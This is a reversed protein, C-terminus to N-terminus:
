PEAYAHIVAAVCGEWLDTTTQDLWRERREAQSFTAHALDAPAACGTAWEAM